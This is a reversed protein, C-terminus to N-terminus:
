RMTAACGVAGAVASSLSTLRMLLETIFSFLATMMGLPMHAATHPANGAMAAVVCEAATGRCLFATRSRSLLLISSVIHFLKSHM